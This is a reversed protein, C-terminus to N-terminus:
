GSGTAGRLTCSRDARTSFSSPSCIGTSSDAAIRSRSANSTGAGASSISTPTGPNRSASTCRSASRISSTARM